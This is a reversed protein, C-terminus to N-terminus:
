AKRQPLAPGPHVRDTFGRDLEPESVSQAQGMEEQSEVTPFLWSVTERVRETQERIQALTTQSIGTKETEDQARILTNELEAINTRVERLRGEVERLTLNFFVALDKFWDRKRLRIQFDFRGQAMQKCTQKFRYIPGVIRHMLVISCAVFILDAGIVAWFFSKNLGVFFTAAQYKKLTLGETALERMAPYFLFLGLIASHILLLLLLLFANGL